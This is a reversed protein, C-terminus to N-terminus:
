PTGPDFARPPGSKVHDILKRTKGNLDASLYWIIAIVAGLPAFLIGIIWAVATHSFRTDVMIETRNTEKQTFTASGKMSGIQFTIMDASQTAMGGMTVVGSLFRRKAEDISVDIGLSERGLEDYGM